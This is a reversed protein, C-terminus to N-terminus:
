AYDVHVFNETAGCDLLATSEARAGHMNVFAELTM